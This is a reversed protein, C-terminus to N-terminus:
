EKKRYREYVLGGGLGVATAVAGFGPVPDSQAGEGDGGKNAQDDPTTEDGPGDNDNDPPEQDDSSDAPPPSDNEDGNGPPESGGDPVEEMVGVEVLAEQLTVVSVDREAAHQLTFEIREPPLTDYGTHGYLIGFFEGNEIEEIFAVIDDDTMRDTEFTERGIHFPDLNATDILSPARGANPVADYYSPVVDSVYGDYRNYPHVYATVPYGWSELREKSEELVWETFENTYRVWPDDEMAVDEEIPEELLLLEQGDTTETGAATAELGITDSFIRLPDGPFQGHINSQVPLETDGADIDGEIPIEGLARHDISHSMIEWDARYIDDLQEQTLWHDSEGILGPCAAVCAPAGFEEHIPLAETYDEVHGDDYIIALMNENTSDARVTGVTALGTLGVAGAGISQLTQRRTKDPREYSM